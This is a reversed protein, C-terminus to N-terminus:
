SQGNKWGHRRLYRSLGRPTIELRQAAAELGHTRGLDLRRQREAQPLFQLPPNKAPLDHRRRWMIFAHRELGLREAAERDTAAREYAALRRREEGAGLPTAHPERNRRRTREM